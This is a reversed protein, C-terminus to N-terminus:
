LGSRDGERKCERKWERVRKEWGRKWERGEETERSAAKERRRERRQRERGGDRECLTQQARSVKIHCDWKRSPSFLMVCFQHHWCSEREVVLGELRSMVMDTGRLWVWSCEIVWFWTSSCVSQWQVVRSWFHDFLAQSHLLPTIDGQSVSM